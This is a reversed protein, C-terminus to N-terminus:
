KVETTIPLLKTLGGDRTHEYLTKGSSTIIYPLFVEEVKVMQLDVLALQAEIWRLIQRWAVRRAQQEDRIYATEGREARKWLPLHDCPLQFPILTDNLLISFSMGSLFGDDNYSTMVQKAGYKSLLMQIEAVTQEPSKKTTEMFITKM